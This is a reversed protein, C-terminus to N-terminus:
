GNATGGTKIVMGDRIKTICSRIDPVGDIEVTCDFCIGMGCYIGRPKQKKDTLRFTRYGNAILVAAVTEGLYANVQSGNIWVQVLPGREILPLDHSKRTIRLM